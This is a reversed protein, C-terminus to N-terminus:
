RCEMDIDHIWNGDDELQEKRELEKKYETLTDILFELDIDIMSRASDFCIDITVIEGHIDIDVEDTLEINWQEPENNRWKNVTYFKEENNM